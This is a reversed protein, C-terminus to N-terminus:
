WSYCEGVVAHLNSFYRNFCQVTTCRSTIFTKYCYYDNDWSVGLFFIFFFANNEALLKIWVFLICACWLQILRPLPRVM